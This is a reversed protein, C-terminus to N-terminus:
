DWVSACAVGDWAAYFIRSGSADTPSFQTKVVSIAWKQTGQADLLRRRTDSFHYVYVSDDTGCEVSVGARVVLAGPYEAPRSLELRSVYGLGVDSGQPKTLETHELEADLQTELSGFAADLATINAPL